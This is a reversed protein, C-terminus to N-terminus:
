KTGRKGGAASVIKPGKAPKYGYVDGLWQHWRKLQEDSGSFKFHVHKLDDFGEDLRPVELRSKYGMFAMLPLVERRRGSGGADVPEHLARYVSNHMALELPATFYVCRVRVQVADPQNLARVLALYEARVSVTPSTNDVVVSKPPSATLAKRVADLCAQRTKLTDQNVHIYGKPAFHTKFFTTKGVGPPGVFVVVEPPPEDDFESRRRPLLPPSCPSYLPSTHDHSRPDWGDFAVPSHPPKDLLFQEPTLFRLGCNLAFKHDTDSHDKQRTATAPRGAADGVYFSADYDIPVGGNFRSEFALWMAPAPKRYENHDFAAFVRLPIELARAVVPIKRKFWGVKATAIGQNSFLVIAFGDAHLKRLKPIVHPNIWEWDSDSKPFPTNGRPRILTGDIDFAAIKASPAPSRSVFHGCGKGSGLDALWAGQSPEPPRFLPALKAQSVTATSTPPKPRPAAPKDDDATLDLVPSLRRRKPSPQGM